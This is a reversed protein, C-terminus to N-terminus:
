VLREWRQVADEDIGVFFSDVYLTHPLRLARLITGVEIEGYGASLPIHWGRMDSDMPADLQAGVHELVALSYVGKSRKDLIAKM